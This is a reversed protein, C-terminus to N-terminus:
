RHDGITPVRWDTIPEHVDDPKFPRKRKPCGHQEFCAVGLAVVKRMEELAAAEGIETTMASDAKAMFHRMYTLFHAVSKTADHSPGGWKADQYDRESNIANYVDNRTM